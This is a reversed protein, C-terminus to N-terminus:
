GLPPPNTSRRSREPLEITVLGPTNPDKSPSDVPDEILPELGHKLILDDERVKRFAMTFLYFVPLIFLILIPDALHRYWPAADWAAAAVRLMGQSFCADIICAIVLTAVAVRLRQLDRVEQKRDQVRSMLMSNNLIVARNRVKSVECYEKGMKEDMDVLWLAAPMNTILGIFQWAVALSPIFVAFLMSTIIASVSILGAASPLSEGALLTLVSSHSSCALLVDLVVIGAM